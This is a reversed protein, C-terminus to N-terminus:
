FCLNTLLIKILACITLMLGSPIVTTRIMNTWWVGRADAPNSSTENFGGPFAIVNCGCSKDAPERESTGLRRLAIQLLHHDGLKRAESAIQAYLFIHKPNNIVNAM